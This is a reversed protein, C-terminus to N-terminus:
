GASHRTPFTMLAVGYCLLAAIMAVNFGFHMALLTALMASVVSACGNIGWAWAVLRPSGALRALGLPFPMGLAFGLPAILVILLLVKVPFPMGIVLTFVSGVAFAHVLGLGIIVAVAIYLTDRAKATAAYRDAFQSGFGACVLLTGIVVAAAYIPHHLLLM